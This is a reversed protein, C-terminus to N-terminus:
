SAAGSGVPCNALFDELQSVRVRMSDLADVSGQGAEDILAAVQEFLPAVEAMALTTAEAAKARQKRRLEDRMKAARDAAAKESTVGVLLDLIENAIPLLADVVNYVDFLRDGAPFGSDPAGPAQRGAGGAKGGANRAKRAIELRERRISEVKSGDAEILAKTGALLKASLDKYLQVREGLKSDDSDEGAALESLFGDFEEFSPRKVEGELDESLETLLGEVDALVEEYWNGLSLRLSDHVADTNTSTESAARVSEEIVLDLRAQAKTRVSNLSAHRLRHREEDLQAYEIAKSLRNRESELVNRVGRAARAWFRKQASRRLDALGDPLLSIRKTLEQIGDWSRYDEWPLREIPSTLNRGESYPDQAIVSIDLTDPLDLMRRLERQKSTARTKYESPNDEPDIATDFRAIVFHLGAALWEETALRRISDLEGTPLTQNVLVFLADSTALALEAEDNHLQSRGTSHGPDIGPSDRVTVGLVDIERAEFTTPAGSVVLWDPIDRGADLLLRRLLSSKGTNYAGYLTLVPREKEAFKRWRDRFAAADETSVSDVWAELQESESNV